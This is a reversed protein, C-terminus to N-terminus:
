LLEELGVKKRIYNIETKIPEVDASPSTRLISYLESQLKNLRNFTERRDTDEDLTKIITIRRETNKEATSKVEPDNSAVKKLLGSLYGIGEAALTGHPRKFYSLPARLADVMLYIGVARFLLGPIVFNYVTSSFSWTFVNGTSVLLFHMSPLNTMYYGLAGFYAASAISAAKPSFADIKNKIRKQTRYPLFGTPLGNIIGYTIKHKFGKRLREGAAKNLEEKYISKYREEEDSEM